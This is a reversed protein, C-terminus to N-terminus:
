LRFSLSAQKMIIAINKKSCAKFGKIKNFSKLQIKNKITNNFSLRNIIKLRRELQNKIQNVLM